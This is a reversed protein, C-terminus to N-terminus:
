LVWMKKKKTINGGGGGGGVPIVSEKGREEDIMEWRLLHIYKIYRLGMNHVKHVPVYHFINNVQLHYSPDLVYRAM